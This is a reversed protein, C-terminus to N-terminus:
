VTPSREARANGRAGEGDSAGCAFARPAACSSSRSCVSRVRARERRDRVRGGGRTNARRTPPTRETADPFDVSRCENARPPGVGGHRALPLRIHGVVLHVPVAEPVRHVAQVVAVHHLRRRPVVHLLGLRLFGRGRVHAGNLVIQFIQLVVRLEVRQVLLPYLLHLLLLLLAPLHLALAVPRVVLHVLLLEQGLDRAGELHTAVKVVLLKLATADDVLM